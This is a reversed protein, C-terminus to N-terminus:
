SNLVAVSLMAFFDDATSEICSLNWRALRARTALDISPAVFYGRLAPSAEEFLRIMSPDRLSTGVVVITCDQMLDAAQRWMTGRSQDMRSIDSETLLLTPLDGLTGHLKVLCGEGPLSEAPNAIVPRNDEEANLASEFLSDWNTTLIQRFTRVAARHAQTARLGQPPHLMDRIKAVLQERGALAEYDAAISAFSHGQDPYSPEIERIAEKLYEAFALATPMGAVISMGAGALLVAKGQRVDRVLGVPLAASPDINGPGQTAWQRVPKNAVREIVRARLFGRTLVGILAKSVSNALDSALEFRTVSQGGDWAAVAARFADRANADPSMSDAGYPLPKVFPLVPISQRTAERYELETVSLGLEAQPGSPPRWGYSDGLILIFLDSTSLEEQIRTWSGTGEPLWGEANVAEMGFGVLTRCVADRENALDKMTSAVFVRLSM